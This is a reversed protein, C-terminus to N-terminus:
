YKRAVRSLPHGKAKIELEGFWGFPTRLVKLGAASLRNEIMKLAKLAQEPPAPEGFLHAFPHLIITNANVRSAQETISQCAKIAAEELDAVDHEEVLCLVMLCSNAEVIRKEEVVKARGKSKPKFRFRSLHWMLIRM